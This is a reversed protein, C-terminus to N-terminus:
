PTTQLLRREYLRVFPLYIAGAIVMNVAVLLPARPDLTCLYTGVFSPLAAPVYFAPRAVWGHAVAVFTTAALVVPVLVFPVILAPNLVVPVGFLLPENLNFISPVLSLRGVTRLRPVRSIALLATLPLTAGAGGPMVFLFLSAVVLHPLPAHHAFAATNQFQLTLYVPTVIAALMAPGHIGAAWLVTQAITILLLAAFTDGLTGLPQLLVRLQDGLSFHGDLLALAAGVAVAAGAAQAFSSEPLLRKGASVSAGVFLVVIIALLLGSTGAASLYASVGAFPNEPPLSVVFVIAAASVVVLPSLGSRVAFRYALVFLLAFAMVGFAPLQALSIRNALTAFFAGHIQEFPLFAILGAALAALSVPFSERVASLAPAERWASKSAAFWPKSAASSLSM